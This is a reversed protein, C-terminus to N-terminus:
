FYSASILKIVVSSGDLQTHVFKDGVRHNLLSRGLGSDAAVLSADSNEDVESVLRIRRIENNVRLNIESGINIEKKIYKNLLM